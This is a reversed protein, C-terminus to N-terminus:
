SIHDYCHNSAGHFDTRDPCDAGSMSVYSLRILALRRLEPICTRTRGHAGTQVSSAAPRPGRAVALGFAFATRRRVALLRFPPSRAAAQMRSVVPCLPARLGQRGQFSSVPPEFGGARVM